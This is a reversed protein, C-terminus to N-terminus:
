HKNKILTRVPRLQNEKISNLAGILPKIIKDRLIKDTRYKGEKIREKIRAINPTLPYKASSKLRALRADVEAQHDPTRGSDGM